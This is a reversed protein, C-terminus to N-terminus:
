TVMYGEGRKFCECSNKARADSVKVVYRTDMTDSTTVAWWLDRNKVLEPISNVSIRAQGM